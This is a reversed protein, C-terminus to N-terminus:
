DLPASAPDMRAQGEHEHLRATAPDGNAEAIQARRAWLRPLMYREGSRRVHSFAADVCASAQALDGARLALDAALDHFATLDVSDGADAMAALVGQLLPLAAGADGRAGEAWLQLARHRHRGVTLEEREILALVEASEEAVAQADGIWALWLGLLVGNLARSLPTYHQPLLERLTAVDPRREDHGQLTDILARLLAREHAQQAFFRAYPLDRPRVEPALADARDIAQRARAFEGRKFASFHLMSLAQVELTASGSAAARAAVREAVENAVDFRGRVVHHLWLVRHSNVGDEDLPLEAYAQVLEAAAAGLADAAYGDILGIASARSHAFTIRWRDADPVSAGARRLLALGREALALVERPAQRERALVVARRLAPLAQAADLAQEFHYALAAAHDGGADGHRAQLAMAVRRHLEVRRAGGCRAYCLSHMLAHGFRYRGSPPAAARVETGAAHLWRGGRVLGDCRAHVEAADRDLAAALTAADFEVGAVAAAELLERQHPALAVFQKEFLGALSHPLPLPQPLAGALQWHGGNDQRLVGDVALADVVARAFLPVGETHAQLAALASASWAIGPCWLALLHRLAATDLGDLGLEDALRHLRLERRIDALPHETLLLDTARFTCLVLVRAATRRRALFDILQVSAHDSWHLDELVLVVPARQALQELLAAVERPMREAAGGEAAAAREAEHQLWPMQALWSPACRRLWQPLDDVSALLSALAELWPLYPEGRGFSEVCQGHAVITGEPLREVFAAALASKGVGPDGSVFAIRRQGAAVAHWCRDLAALADDRGVLSPAAPTSPPEPATTAATAGVPPALAPVSAAQGDDAVFRYGRRPVTQIWRAAKPDDGLAERLEAVATKIVGETVFRTGWVADLLEDKTVLEGARQVLAGLVDFPRPRLAVPQGDRRLTAARLDLVFPGFAVPRKKLAPPTDIPSPPANM